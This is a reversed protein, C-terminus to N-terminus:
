DIVDLFCYISPKIFKNKSSSLWFNRGELKSRTGFFNPFFSVSCNSNEKVVTVLPECVTHLIRFKVLRCLIPVLM